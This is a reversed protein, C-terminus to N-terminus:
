GLGPGNEKTLNHYILCLFIVARGTEKTNRTMIIRNIVKKWASLTVKSIKELHILFIYIKFQDSATQDELVSFSFIIM